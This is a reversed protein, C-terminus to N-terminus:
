DGDKEELEELRLAMGPVPTAILGLVVREGARVGTDDEGRPEALVHDKEYWIVKLKRMELRDEDDMIWVMGGERLATRPLRVVNELVRGEIEVRVRSGALLPTRGPKELGLPDKVELLLRAMRSRPDTDSLLRVVRAQRETEGGQRTTLIVRATSGGEGDAGPVVVFRLRDLPISVRLWFADTGVLTALNMSRDVLQGLEAREETVVANFPTRITTRELNLKAFALRSQASDFRAKASALQPKRLALEQTAASKALDSELLAWERRAIEGRGKELELQSRAQAVDAAAQEVALAYDRPDIRALVAGEKCLGGPVLQPCPEIIRGAVEPRIVVTRSPTVMAMAPVHVPYTGTTAAEVEVLTALTETEKREPPPKTVIVYGAGGAAIMLVAIPLPVMMWFGVRRPLRRIAVVVGISFAAFVALAAVAALAGVGPNRFVFGLLDAATDYIVAIMRAVFQLVPTM